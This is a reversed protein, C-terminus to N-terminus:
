AELLVFSLAVHEGNAYKRYQKQIGTAHCNIPGGLLDGSCALPPTGKLAAELTDADARLLPPTQVKWENKHGRITALMTGDFARERDGVESVDATSTNLEVPVTVGAVVLFEM